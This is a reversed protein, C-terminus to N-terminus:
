LLRWEDNTVADTHIGVNTTNHDPSVWNQKQDGTRKTEKGPRQPSNWLGGIVIPIVTVKMNWLKKLERAFDLYRYIM